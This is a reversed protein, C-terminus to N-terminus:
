CITMINPPTAVGRLLNLPASTVLMDYRGTAACHAALADLDFLEGLPLGLLPLLALHLFLSAAIAPDDCTALADVREDPSM